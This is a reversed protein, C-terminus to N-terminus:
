AGWVGGSEMNTYDTVNRQKGLGNTKGVTKGKLDTISSGPRKNAYNM